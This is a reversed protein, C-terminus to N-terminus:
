LCECLGPFRSSSQNQLHFIDDLIGGSEQCVISYQAQGVELRASMMPVSGNCFPKLRSAQQGNIRGWTASMSCDLRTVFLMINM